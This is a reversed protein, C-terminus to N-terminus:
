AYVATANTVRGEVVTIQQDAPTTKGSVAKFKVTHVGPTLNIVTDGSSYETTATGIMFKGEAGTINVMIGGTKCYDGALDLYSNKQENCLFVKEHWDRLRTGYGAQLWFQWENPDEYIDRVQVFKAAAQTNIALDMNGMKQLTLRSGNGLCEHTSFILSPCFADERILELMRQVTPYEQAKLKNRLATRAAKIVHQSLLLQPIGGNSSRLAQHSSGIFDVLKDYAETSVGDDAIIFAGTRHMNGRALNIDGAAIIADIHTDFGDFACNPSTSDEDRTAGFLSSVVDEGHSITQAKLVGFEMPHKKTKNETANGGVIILEQDDYKKANEKTKFVVDKPEIESPDYGLLNSLEEFTKGVKYSQTGGARRRENILSHKGKLEMVNLKLEAAVGQITVFPLARLAKDYTVCAQNLKSVDILKTQSM